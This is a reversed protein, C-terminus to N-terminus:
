GAAVARIAEVTAGVPEFGLRRYIDKAPEDEHAMLFVLEAGAARAARAAGWVVASAHGRRRHTPLTAVDEVQFVAGDSFLHCYSVVEGGTRVAFSRAGGAARAVLDDNALLQRATEPDRGYPESRLFARRAQLLVDRDVEEAHDGPPREPAALQAMVLTRRVTFGRSALEPGLRSGAREDFHLSRHQLGAGGQLRDAEALLEALGAEGPDREVQLFNRDWVRPLREHLHATGFAYPEVRTSLRHELEALFSLARELEGSV